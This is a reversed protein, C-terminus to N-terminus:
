PIVWYDIERAAQAFTRAAHDTDGDWKYAKRAEIAVTLEADTIVGFGRLATLGVFCIEGHDLRLEGTGHTFPISARVTRKGDSM